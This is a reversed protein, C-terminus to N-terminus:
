VLLTYIFSFLQALFTYLLLLIIPAVIFLSLVGAIDKFSASKKLEFTQGAAAVMILLILLSILTTIKNYIQNGLRFFRIGSNLLYDGYTLAAFLNFEGFDQDNPFTWLANAEYNLPITKIEKIHRINSPRGAIDYKIYDPQYLHIEQSILKAYDAFVSYELNNHSNYAFIRINRIYFVQNIRTLQGISFVHNDSRFVINKRSPYYKTFSFEKLRFNAGSIDNKIPPKKQGYHSLIKQQRTKNFTLPTLFEAVFIYFAMGLIFFFLVSLLTGKVNQSLYSNSFVLGCFLSTSLLIPLIMKLTLLIQYSLEYIHVGVVKLQYIATLVVTLLIFGLLFLIMNFLRHM